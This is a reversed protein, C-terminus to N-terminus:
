RKPPIQQETKLVYPILTLYSSTVDRLVTIEAIVSVIVRFTM